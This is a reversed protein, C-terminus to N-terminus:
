KITNFNIQEIITNINRRLRVIKMENILSLTKWGYYNHFNISENFWIKLEKESLNKINITYQNVQSHLYKQRDELYNLVIIKQSVNTIFSPNSEQNNSIFEIEALNYCQEVSTIKNEEEQTM